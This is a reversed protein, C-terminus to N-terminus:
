KMPQNGMKLPQQQMSTVTWKEDASMLGTKRLWKGAAQPWARVDKDSRLGYGHGDMPYFVLENPDHARDLAAQYLRSGPSVIVSSTAAPPLQLDAAGALWGALAFLFITLYKAM